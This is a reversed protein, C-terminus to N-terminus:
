MNVQTNLASNYCQGPVFKGDKLFATKAPFSFQELILPLAEFVEAGSTISESTIGNSKSNEFLSYAEPTDLSRDKLILVWEIKELEGLDKKLSDCWTQIKQIRQKFLDKTMGSQDYSQIIFEQQLTGKELKANLYCNAAFIEKPFINDSFPFGFSFASAPKQTPTKQFYEFHITKEKQQKIEKMSIKFDKRFSSFFWPVVFLGSVLKLLRCANGLITLKKYSRGMKKCPKNGHTSNTQKASTYPHTATSKIEYLSRM